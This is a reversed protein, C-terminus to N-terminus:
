GVLREGLLGALAVVVGVAVWSGARQVLPPRM